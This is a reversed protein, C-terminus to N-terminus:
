PTMSKAILTPQLWAPIEAVIWDKEGLDTIKSKWTICEEVLWWDRWTESIYSVNSLSVSAGCQLLFQNRCFELYIIPPYTRFGWTMYLSDRIENSKKSNYYNQHSTNSKRSKGLLSIYGRIVQLAPLIPFAFAVTGMGVTVEWFGFLFALLTIWMSSISGTEFVSFTPNFTFLYLGTIHWNWLYNNTVESYNPIDTRNITPQLAVPVELATWSKSSDSM